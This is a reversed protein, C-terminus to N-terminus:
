SPLKQRLHGGNHRGFGQESPMAFQDSLLVVATSLTSRPSRTGGILDLRQDDAHSFLVPIPAITPDLTRQGVEPVLDRAARNGINQLPAPDLWGRLPFSLCRPLLKQATVPFQDHGGVEKGHAIRHHSVVARRRM